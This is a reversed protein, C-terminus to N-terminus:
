TCVKTILLQQTDKRLSEWAAKGLRQLVMKIEQCLMRGTSKLASRRISREILSYIIGAKTDPLTHKGQDLVCLMQLLIPLRTLGAMSYFDDISKHRPPQDTDMDHIHAILTKAKSTSGLYKGAYIEATERDFGLIEVEIDMYKRVDILQRSTRSTLIICCHGLSDRKIADDIDKNVAAKYEDHGDLLLLVQM